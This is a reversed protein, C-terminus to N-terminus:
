IQNNHRGPLCHRETEHQEGQSLDDEVGESTNLVLIPLQGGGTSGQGDFYAIYGRGDDGRKPCDLCADNRNDHEEDGSCEVVVSYNYGGGRM